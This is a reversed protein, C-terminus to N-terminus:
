STVDDVRRVQSPGTRLTELLGPVQLARRRVSPPRRMKPDDGPEWPCTDTTRRRFYNLAM